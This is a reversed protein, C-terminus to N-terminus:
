SGRQAGAAEVAVVHQMARLWMAQFVQLRRGTIEAVNRTVVLGAEPHAQFYDLLAQRPIALVESDLPATAKLTFRHPPILASWGFAQGPGREDILVDETHEKLRMPLTLVIRGREVVYVCEAISGLQFLEAGSPVQVRSGLARIEMGERAPLGKFLEAPEAPM